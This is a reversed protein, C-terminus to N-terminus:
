RLLLASDSRLFRKRMRRCREAQLLQIVVGLLGRRKAEGCRHLITRLVLGAFFILFSWTQTGHGAGQESEGNGNM